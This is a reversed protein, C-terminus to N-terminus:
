CQWLEADFSVTIYGTCLHPWDYKRNVKFQTKALADDRTEWGPLMPYSGQWYQIEAIYSHFKYM